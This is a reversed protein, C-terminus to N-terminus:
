AQVGLRALSARVRKISEQRPVESPAQDLRAVLDRCMKQQIVTLSDWFDMSGCGEHTYRISYVCMAMVASKHPNSNRAEDNKM